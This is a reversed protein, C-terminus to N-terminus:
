FVLSDEEKEFFDKEFIGKFVPGKYEYDDALSLIIYNEVAEYDDLSLHEPPIFDDDEDVAYSAENLFKKFLDPYDRYLFDVFAEVRDRLKQALPYQM